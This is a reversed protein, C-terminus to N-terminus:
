GTAKNIKTDWSVIGAIIAFFSGALFVYKNIEWIGFSAKLLLGSVAYITRILYQHVRKEFTAEELLLWGFSFISVVLLSAWNNINQKLWNTYPMGWVLDILFVIGCAFIIFDWILFSSNNSSKKM